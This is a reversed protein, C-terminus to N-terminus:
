FRGAVTLGAWTPTLAPQVRLGALSRRLRAARGYSVGYSLLGAGAVVLSQGAATLTLWASWRDRVCDPDLMDDAACSRAGFADRWLAVRSAVYLALGVALAGAGAGAYAPAIRDRRDRLARRWASFRGRVTGGGAALGVAAFNLLPAVTSLGLYRLSEDVCSTVSVHLEPYVYTNGCGNRLIGIRWVHAALGLGGAVGASVLLGSGSLPLAPPVERAPPPTALSLSLSLSLVAAAPSM